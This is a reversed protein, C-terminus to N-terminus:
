STGSKRTLKFDGDKYDAPRSWTGTLTNKNVKGEIIYRRDRPKYTAEFKVAGSKADFVANEIPFGEFSRYMRGGPVGPRVMGTLNTGDWHLELSITNRDYFAPGFDGVWTGNPDSGQAGSRSPACFTPLCFSLLLSFYLIRRM